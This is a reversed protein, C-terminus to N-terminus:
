RGGGSPVVLKDLRTRLLSAVQRAVKEPWFLTLWFVKDGSRVVCMKHQGAPNNPLESRVRPNRGAGDMSEVRISDIAAALVSRAIGIPGAHWRCLLSDPTLTVTTRGWFALVGITVPVLGALIGPIAILLRVPNFPAGPGKGFLDGVSVFGGFWVLAMVGTVGLILWRVPESGICAYHFALREPSDDDIRIPSYLPLDAPELPEYRDRIERGPVLIETRSVAGCHTCTLVGQVAKGALPAGCSRCSDRVVALAPPLGPDSPVSAVVPVAVVDLFDNIRDVIWDKEGDSLATGFQAEDTQGNVHIRYVPKDNQEYAKVLAARSDPMLTTERVKKRNFLVHQVVLRHREVLLFTRGYKM